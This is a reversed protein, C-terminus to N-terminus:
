GPTGLSARLGEYLQGPGLLVDKMDSRIKESDLAQKSMSSHAVLADMIANLMEKALDPSNAFQEKSNNKAQQILVESEMLKGKIADNVYVLKDGPTLDGEFLDNVREVLDRLYAKQKEQVSGGGLENGPDILVEPGYGLKLKADGNDKITFATLRLASLDVGERERGFTLLPQLLRYFIARKEIDTNGYDFIQSLFGYARVYAGIDSKFLVLADMEDKAQGAAKADEGAAEFAKKASSYSTLIRSAVPTLAADLESQKASSGKLAVDVVRDVEFTDYLALGDLKARMENVIYPDTVGSLEATEYYPKFSELIEAPDNVFDVVFTQEKGPYCRNLRSLTQVAQVGGLRKDVYMASLLPEDFGTQFKNAVLLISYDDSKFATRIDQGNLRPNLTKSNETFPDPGSDFDIVEGSFAV